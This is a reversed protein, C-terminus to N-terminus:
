FMIGSRKGGVELYTLNEAVVCCLYEDHDDVHRVITEVRGKIAIISGEQCADSCEAALGKWLRVNFIDKEMTGDALRYSRNAELLLYYDTKGEITELRPSRLVTGVIICMNVM